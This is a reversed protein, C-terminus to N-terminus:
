WRMVGSECKSVYSAYTGLKEAVDLQTLGAREGAARLATLLQQYKRSHKPSRCRWAM